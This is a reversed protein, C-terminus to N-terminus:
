KVYTKEIVSLSDLPMLVYQKKLVDVLNLSNAAIVTLAPINRAAREIRDEKKPLVLLIGKEKKVPAAAAEKKAEGKRKEKKTRLQLNQLIAYFKKTKPETLELKDVLIIKEHAAKDSLTMLLAQRKVKKNIKVAFNRENTPGFTIGGGRWLPSRISGHRARGTGKQRWPKKGGGSVESRDKTNAIVPRSNAQQAIVAQSILQPKVKIGFVASNLEQESVKEGNINYVTAKM